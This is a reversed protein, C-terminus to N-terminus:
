QLLPGLDAKDQALRGRYVSLSQTGDIATYFWLVGELEFVLAHLDRPYTAGATKNEVRIVQSWVRPGLLAQAHRAQALTDTARLAVVAFLFILIRVLSPM